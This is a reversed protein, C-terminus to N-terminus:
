WIKHLLYSNNKILSKFFKKLFYLFTTSMIKFILIIILTKPLLVFCSLLFVKLFYLITTSLCKLLSIINLSILTLCEM